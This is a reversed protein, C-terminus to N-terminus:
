RTKAKIPIRRRKPRKPKEKAKPPKVQVLTAVADKFKLPALSLPKQRM